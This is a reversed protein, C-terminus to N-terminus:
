DNREGCDLQRWKFKRKIIMNGIIDILAGTVIIVFIASFAMDTRGRATSINILYGLGYRANVTEGIVCMLFATNFMSLFSAFLMPLSAPIYVYKTLTWKNAGSTLGKEVLNNDINKLILMVNPFFVFFTAIFLFMIKMGEDIGMWMILMPYFVTVPIYRIMTIFSMLINEVFKFNKSLLGLPLSIGVSILTATFIRTMSAKWALFLEGNSILGIFTKITSEISPLIIPQVKDGLLIWIIILIIPMSLNKVKDLIIYIPVKLRKILNFIRELNKM